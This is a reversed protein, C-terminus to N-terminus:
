KPWATFWAARTAACAFPPSIAAVTVVTSPVLALMEAGWLTCSLPIEAGTDITVM